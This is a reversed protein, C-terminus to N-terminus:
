SGNGSWATVIFSLAFPYLMITRFASEFRIKQDMSRPWARLGRGHHLVLLCSGFIALNWVSKNWRPTEFLRQYQEVGVFEGNPLLRSDTFSYWVTWLTCGVFVWRVTAVMPAAAIKASINRLFLHRLVRSVRGPAVPRAEPSGLEAM